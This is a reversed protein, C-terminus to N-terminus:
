AAGGKEGAAAPATKRPRGRRRPPETATTPVAPRFTRKSVLWDNIDTSLWITKRGRLAPEPLDSLLQCRKIGAAHKHLTSVSVKLLAALEKIGLLETM